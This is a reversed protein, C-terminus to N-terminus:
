SLSLMGGAWCRKIKAPDCSSSPLVSDSWMSFSLVSCKRMRTAHLDDHFGQSPFWFKPYGPKSPGKSCYKSTDLLKQAHKKTVQIEFHQWTNGKKLCEVRDVVLFGLDLVIVADRRVLLTQDESPRLEFIPPSQRVMDLLLARQVQHQAQPTAHLDEHFSQGPLVMVQSISTQKPDKSCSKSTDLLKRAQKKQRNRFAAM